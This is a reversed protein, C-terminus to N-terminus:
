ITVFQDIDTDHDSCNGNTNGNGEGSENDSDSDSDRDNDKEKHRNNNNKSDNNGKTSGRKEYPVRMQMENAGKVIQFPSFPIKRPYQFFVLLITMKIYVTCGLNAVGRLSHAVLFASVSQCVVMAGIEDGSTFLNKFEKYM